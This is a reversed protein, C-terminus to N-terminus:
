HTSAIAALAIAEWERIAEDLENVSFYRCAGDDTEISIQPEDAVDQMWCCFRADINGTKIGSYVDLWLHSPDRHNKRKLGGAGVYVKRKNGPVARAISVVPRMLEEIRDPRWLVHEWHEPKPNNRRIRELAAERAGALDGFRKRNVILNELEDKTKTSLNVEKM